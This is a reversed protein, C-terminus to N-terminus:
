AEPANDLGHEEFGDGSIQSCPLSSSPGFKGKEAVRHVLSATM